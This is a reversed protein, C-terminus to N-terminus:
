QLRTADHDDGETLEEEGGAVLNTFVGSCRQSSCRAQEPALLADVQPVREIPHISAPELIDNAIADRMRPIDSRKRTKTPTATSM